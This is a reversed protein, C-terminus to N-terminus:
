ATKKAPENPNVSGEGYLKDFLEQFEKEVADFFDERTAFDKPKFVKGYIFPINKNFGMSLKKENVMDENGRSMIVQVPLDDGYAFYIVGRKLPKPKLAINRTGEPYNIMAPLSSEELSKSMWPYFTDKRVADRKFWFASRDFSTVVYFWPFAMLVGYRSLNSGRGDVIKRHVFFDSWSRHPCVYMCKETFLEGDGLKKFRCGFYWCTIDTWVQSVTRNPPGSYVGLARLFPYLVLALPPLVQGFVLFHYLFNVAKVKKVLVVCAALSAAAVAWTPLGFM